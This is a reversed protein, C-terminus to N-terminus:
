YGKFTFLMAEELTKITRSRWHRKFGKWRIKKGEENMRQWEAFIKAANFRIEKKDFGSPILKMGSTSPTFRSGWFHHFFQRLRNEIPGSQAVEQNGHCIHGNMLINLCPPMSVRGQINELKKTAFWMTTYGANVEDKSTAAV